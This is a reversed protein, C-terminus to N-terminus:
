THEEGIEALRITLKNGTKKTIITKQFEEDNRDPYDARCHAGRSETRALASRMMAEGLDLLDEEALAEGSHRPLASVPETRLTALLALGNELGSGTRVIGMADAIIEQFKRLKGTPLTKGTMVSLRGRVTALEDAAATEAADAPICERVATVSAIRGGYVTALTSNGGLRNAGHYQCACEGAAYLGPLSTRHSRDVWIGGMFYHVAPTVPIYTEAPDRHLYTTCLDTIEKLRDNRIHEPLHELELGVTNKGGIGLNMDHCAKYIARSIIDRPMLNGLEPYWEEMFYWRKGDRFTFLRGGEGRPSESILMHKAPTEVTTPHYQIMELNAMEVGKQFLAASVSGDSLRSGTHGPFLGGLGGSAVIVADSTVTSLTGTATDESVAGVKSSRM